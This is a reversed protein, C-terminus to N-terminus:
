AKRSTQSHMSSRRLGLGSPLPCPIATGDLEGPCRLGGGETTAPHPAALRRTPPEGPLWQPLPLFNGDADAPPGPPPDLRTQYPKGTKMVEAMENKDDCAVHTTSLLM